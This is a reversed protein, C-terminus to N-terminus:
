ALKKRKAMQKKIVPMFLMVMALVIFFLSIPKEFFIMWSGKSIILARRLNSEALPGLVIAIVMPTLPFDLKKMIYGFLGFLVMLLADFSTNNVAYAGIICLTVLVPVMVQTPIKTVNVFSRIFFKGQFYMFLNVIILGFMISYVWERQQVFLQPGPIIGQMTLAGILIATNTDGPIGLTLLPILTAGTVANNAAESAVVADESGQGFEEPHKSVRKAENYSLFSAIAAGTGPIAGIFTGIVSSKLLTGKYKFVDWFSQKKEMKFEAVTGVPKYVDRAKSMIETVAFLGILAPIIDIGGLLSTVGFSFRDIGDVPDLGIVSVLLGAMGMLLGKILSDGGVSAIITLGFLALAFYEAPGFRLAFNAIIPAAVILVVCSFLGGVLSASLATHLARGAQGKRAMAYGDIATAASAPTGPPNI